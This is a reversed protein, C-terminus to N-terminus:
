LEKIAKLINTILKSDIYLGAEIMAQFVPRIEKILGHKKAKLVLGVSGIFVIEMVGACKRAQLDDVVVGIGELVALSLM